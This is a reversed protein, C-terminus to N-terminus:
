ALAAPVEGLSRIVRVGAARAQVLEDASATAGRDLWIGRMGAGAAGLADTAFRDGVYACEELAVSFQSAAHSFIRADPKTIGLSGSAIVHEFYGAIRVQDLKRQQFDPEGNTIIGLRYGSLAALLGLTDDHLHWASRYREFYSDFWAGAAAEELHVGHAAAFDRARARRQGEFDLRGALYSHYHEEELAHWLAVVTEPDASEFGGVADLHAVIGRAVSGRHAFLTDDLDFLVVRIV